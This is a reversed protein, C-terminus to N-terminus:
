YEISQGGAAEISQGEVAEISQGEVAEISQGEGAEARLAKRPRPRGRGGRELRGRGQGEVAVARQGEEAKARRDGRGVRWPGGAARNGVKKKKKKKHEEMPYKGTALTRPAEPPGGTRATGERDSRLAAAVTDRIMQQLGEPTLWSEGALRELPSSARPGDNGEDGDAM